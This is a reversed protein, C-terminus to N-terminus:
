GKRGLLLLVRREADGRITVTKLGSERALASAQEPTYYTKDEPNRPYNRRGLDNLFDFLLFGGPLLVEVASELLARGQLRGYHSLLVGRSVVAGARPCLEALRFCDGAVFRARAIGKATAARLMEPSIDVGIGWDFATVLEALVLGTGCGADILGRTRCYRARRSVCQRAQQLFRDYADDDNLHCAPDALARDWDPAREDWRAAIAALQRERYPQKVRPEAQGAGPRV